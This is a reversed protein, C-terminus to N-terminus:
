RVVEQRPVFDNHTFVFGCRLCGSQAVVLDGEPFSEALDIRTLTETEISGCQPCTVM